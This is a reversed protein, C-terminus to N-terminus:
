NLRITVYLKFKQYIKTDISSANINDRYIEGAINYKEQYLLGNRPESLSSQEQSHMKFDPQDFWGEM